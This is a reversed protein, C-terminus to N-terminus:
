VAAKAPHDSFDDKMNWPIGRTSVYKKAHPFDKSFAHRISCKALESQICAAVQIGGDEDTNSLIVIFEDGGFRAVLDSSRKVCADILHAIKIISEDGSLHGYHDNYTKFYDVDRM